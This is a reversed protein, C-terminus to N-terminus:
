LYVTSCYPLLCLLCVCQEAWAFLKTIPVRSCSQLLYQLLLCVGVCVCVPVASYVCCGSYAASPSLFGSWMTKLEGQTPQRHGGAPAASARMRSVAKLAKRMCMNGHFVQSWLGFAGSGRNPQHNPRLLCVCVLWRSNQTRNGFSLFL